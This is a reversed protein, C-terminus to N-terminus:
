ELSDDAVDEFVSDVESATTLETIGAGTLEDRMPQVMVPDYMSDEEHFHSWVSLDTPNHAAM